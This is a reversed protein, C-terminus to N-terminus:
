RVRWARVANSMPELLGQGAAYAGVCIRQGGEIEVVDGRQAKRPHVEEGLSGGCDALWEAIWDDHVETVFVALREPWDTVRM